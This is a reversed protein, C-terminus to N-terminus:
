GPAAGFGGAAGQRAIGTPSQAPAVSSRLVLQPSLDVAQRTRPLGDPRIGGVLQDVCNRGLETFDQRVTTLPPWLHAAEPIDEFGAVSVDGPVDLGAERFAHILGIAMQDNAAFVATFGLRAGGGAAREGIVARGAAYGSDGTWDGIVAPLAPLAASRLESRYCSLRSGADHWGPAGALHLIRQHGRGILYRMMMRAGRDRDVQVVPIGCAEGPGTVAVAPVSGLLSCLGSWPASRPAVVVVGEVDQGLLDQITLGPDVPGASLRAAALHYGRQRAADEVARAGGEHAHRARTGIALVGIVGSRRTSLTRAARSPLFRLQDIAAVVQARTSERVYPHENLVRSVTQSSVGALRAVDRINPPRLDSATGARPLSAARHPGGARAAMEDLRHV